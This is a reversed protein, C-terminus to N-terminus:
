CLVRVPNQAGQPFRHTTVVSRGYFADWVLEGAPETLFGRRGPTGISLDEGVVRWVGRIVGRYVCFVYKYDRAAVKWEKRTIECLQDENLDASFKVNPRILLAPWMSQPVTVPQAALHALEELPAWGADSSGHGATLNVLERRGYRRLTDIVASEIMLAADDSPLGYRVIEVLVEHGAAHIENILVSKADARSVGPLRVNRAHSYAREGIGKGVYFLERNRPDVLAYVYHGLRDALGPLLRLRQRELDM